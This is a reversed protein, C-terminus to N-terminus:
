WRTPKKKSRTDHGRDGDSDETGGAHDTLLKDGQQRAMRPKADGPEAGALARFALRVAVRGGPAQGRCERVIDGRETDVRRRGAARRLEHERAEIRRHGGLDLAGKGGGAVDDDAVRAVVPHVRLDRQENGLDVRIM